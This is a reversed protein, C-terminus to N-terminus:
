QNVTNKEQAQSWKANWDEAIDDMTEQGSIASEVIRMVHTTDSNLSLESDNNIHTFLDEEGSLAPTDEIEIVDTFNDFLGEPLSDAKYPSMNGVYAYYGSEETLWKVYLMAALQNEPASNVNIGYCYDSNITAYQKGDVSIPFPMYGIDDANPGAGQISSIAGCGLVMVGIEGNNMMALATEFDSSAPDDETLGEKVATYLINYVAYPGTGESFATKSFPNETKALEINMLDPNGTATGGIFSDWFVMPWQSGFITYLPIASTNQKILMLADIFEDPTKPLETIGADAFVKKNYVIGQVNGVSSMGYCEGDYAKFSCFNYKNSLNEVKGFSLFYNNLEAADITTPISCLDGWNKNTLRTTATQEYDSVGEYSLTINPYLENFEKCYDTFLNDVYDTRHTLIKIEATLDSYDGLTLTDFNVASINIETSSEEADSTLSSSDSTSSSSDSASPAAPSKGCGVMALIMTVATMTSIIKKINTM